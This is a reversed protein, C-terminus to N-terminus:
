KKEVDEHKDDSNITGYDGKDDGALKRHHDFM